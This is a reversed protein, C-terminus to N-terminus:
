SSAASHACQYTFSRCNHIRRPFDYLTTKSLLPTKLSQLDRSVCKACPLCFERCGGRSSVHSVVYVACHSRKHRNCYSCFHYVPLILSNSMTLIRPQCIQDYLPFPVGLRLTLDLGFFEPTSSFFSWVTRLFIFTWGIWAMSSTLMNLDSPFTMWKAAGFPVNGVSWIGLRAERM